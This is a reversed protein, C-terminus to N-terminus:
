ESSSFLIKSLIPIPFVGLSKVKVEISPLEPLYKDEETATVPGVGLLILGFLTTLHKGWKTEIREITSVHPKTKMAREGDPQKNKVKGDNQSHM